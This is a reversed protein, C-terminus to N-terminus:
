FSDAYLLNMRDGFRVTKLSRCVQLWYNRRKTRRREPLDLANSVVNSELKYGLGRRAIVCAAAGHSSLGYRAMFKVQGVASTAFPDVRILEVATRGAASEAMKQYKAYVLGSLMRSYRAGKEGLSRKKKEFDLLEMAVPKNKSASLEMVQKLADGLAANIQGTSRDRMPVPIIFEGMPNGFRDIEGVALFGYNLDVGIAGIGRRTAPAPDKRELSAHVYWRDERKLFRYSIPRDYIKKSHGKADRTKVFQRAMDLEKQGYPFAVDRITIHVGYKGTFRKAVRLRMANDFGYTCTQNGYSEDKSGLVFFSSSRAERWANVWEAHDLYENAELDFQAKFLKRGGFCIRYKDRDLDQRVSALKHQLNRLRRKKQHLVFKIRALKKVIAEWQASGQKIKKQKLKKRAKERAREKEKIFKEVSEIQDRLTSERYKLGERVSSVKGAVSNYLSNFQRATIGYKVIYEKKLEAWKGGLVHWDVFLRRELSGFLRGMEEFYRYAEDNVPSIVTRYTTQM